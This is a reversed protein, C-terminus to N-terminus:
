IAAAELLAQPNFAEYTACRWLAHSQGGPRLGTRNRRQLSSLPPLNGRGNENRGRRAPRVSYSRPGRSVHSAQGRRALAGGAGPNEFLQATLRGAADLYAGM